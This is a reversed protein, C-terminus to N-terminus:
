KSNKVDASGRVKEEEAARFLIDNAEDAKLGRAIMEKMMKNQRAALAAFHITVIGALKQWNPIDRGIGEEECVLRVLHKTEDGGVVTSFGHVPVKFVDCSLREVCTTVADWGIEIANFSAEEGVASRMNDLWRKPDFDEEDM